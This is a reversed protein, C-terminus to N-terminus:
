SSRHGSYCWATVLRPHRARPSSIFKANNMPVPLNFVHRNVENRRREWEATNRYEQPFPLTNTRIKKGMSPWEKEPFDLVHIDRRKSPWDTQRRLSPQSYTRPVTACPVCHGASNSCEPWRAEIGMRGDTM